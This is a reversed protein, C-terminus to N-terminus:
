IEKITIGHMYLMLKRKIIYEPTRYGKTDEVITQGTANDVYVFDAIYRCSHELLKRVPKGKLDTGCLAYQAPILEFAVQERLDSILGAQLMLKLQGARRYERGSDYGGVKKAHYKSQKKGKESKQQEAQVLARFQEITLSQPKM